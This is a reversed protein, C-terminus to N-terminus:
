VNREGRLSVFIDCSVNKNTREVFIREKLFHKLPGALARAMCIGRFHMKVCTKYPNQAFITGLLPDARPRPRLFFGKRPDALARGMHVGCFAIQLM